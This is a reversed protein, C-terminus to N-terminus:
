GQEEEFMVCKNWAEPDKGIRRSFAKRGLDASNERKSCLTRQESRDERVVVSFHGGARTM